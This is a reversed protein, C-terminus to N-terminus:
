YQAWSVQNSTGWAFSFGRFGKALPSFVTLKGASATELSRIKNALGRGAAMAKTSTFANSHTEASSATGILLLPPRRIRLRFSKTSHPGCAARTDNEAARRFSRQVMRGRATRHLCFHNLLTNPPGGVRSASGGRRFREPKLFTLKRLIVWDIPMKHVLPKVASM